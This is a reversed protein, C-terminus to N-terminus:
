KEMSDGLVSVAAAIEMDQWPFVSRLDLLLRDQSVRGYVAPKGTRLTTALATTSGESPTIAVCWTPIQQTPVSGGGLYTIEEVPEAQSIASNAALQPALRGARNQLNEMSTSLLALLPVARMAADQDRYLSLTARLAALTIKDVRLARMLPHAAIIQISERKGVIIGCQPGGLLKDGSFLVVDAGAQISESAIPEGTLGFESYDVLAGSGIDDIVLLNHRRGLSVLEDLSAEQTFGVVMFNSTHVRM